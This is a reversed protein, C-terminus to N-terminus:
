ELGGKLNSVVQAMWYHRMGDIHKSTYMPVTVTELKGNASVIAKGYLPLAECGAQGIIMRSDIAAKCHLGVSCTLNVQLVSPVSYRSVTQSCCVLHIRAARGLQLIKQIKAIVPKGGNMILDSMEDIFCYIHSGTFKKEGAEKMASYRRMMREYIEDLLYTAGEVDDAYGSCHPMARWPDLEVMKPDILYLEAEDPTYHNLINYIMGEEFVSKGSGVCGAILTNYQELVATFLEYETCNPATYTETM